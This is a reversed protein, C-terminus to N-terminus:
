QLLPLGPWADLRLAVAIAIGRLTAPDMPRRWRVRPSTDGPWEVDVRDFRTSTVTEAVVQAGRGGTPGKDPGGMDRASRVASLCCGAGVNLLM